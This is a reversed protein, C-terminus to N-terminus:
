VYKSESLYPFLEHLIVAFESIIMATAGWVVRDNLDYYPTNIVEGDSMKIPCYKIKEPSLFDKIAVEFFDSVENKDAVFDHKNNLFAVFPHIIFNSPPVYLDTLKGLFEVHDPKIGLEEEAERLATFFYDRDGKEMRGGPFAIQNSHVGNSATRQILVTHLENGVPFLPILVSSHMPKIGSRLRDAIQKERVAPSLKKQAEIGPLEKRCREKLIECIQEQM